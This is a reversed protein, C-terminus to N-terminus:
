AHKDGFHAQFGVLYHSILSDAIQEFDSPGGGVDIVETLGLIAIGHVGSWLARAGVRRDHQNARPGLPVLRDEVLAFLAQVDKLYWGPLPADNARPNFLLRWRGSAEAAFHLYARGLARLQSQPDYPEGDGAAMASEAVSRLEVLTRANV